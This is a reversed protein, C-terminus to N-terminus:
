PEHYRKSVNKGRPCSDYGLLGPSSSTNWKGLSSFNQVLIDHIIISGYTIVSKPKFREGVKFYIIINKTKKKM